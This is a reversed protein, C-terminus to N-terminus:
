VQSLCYTGINYAVVALSDRVHDPLRDFEKHIEFTFDGEYGIETLVPMISLWDVSGHFPLMHEDEVGYNDAVHTAKLRKGLIRLAIRQDKYLFNGHGFDWCAGVGPDNYADILAALEGAHSSFRRKTSPRELMNEFAVGVNKSKALEVVPAFQEFNKRISAETDFVATTKEEVPHLIAWRVGLISSAIISRRMMKHYIEQLEAPKDDINGPIFVPHSQSFEIGLKEAENRVEYIIKEWNENVLEGKGFLACTFSADVVHFGADKCRRISEIMPIYGGDDRNIFISTSTSLRM